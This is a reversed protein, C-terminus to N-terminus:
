FIKIFMNIVHQEASILVQSEDRTVFSSPIDAAPLFLRRRSKKWAM